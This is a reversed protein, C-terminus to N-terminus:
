TISLICTYTPLIKERKWIERLCFSFARVRNLKKVLQRAEIQNVDSMDLMSSSSRTLKNLFFLFLIWISLATGNFFSEYMGRLVKYYGGNNM